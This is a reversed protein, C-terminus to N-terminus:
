STSASRAAQAARGVSAADLRDGAARLSYKGPNAKVLDILEKLTKAPVSPNVFVVNPSVAALTLPAFDKIPDYPVKAYLSPNVM